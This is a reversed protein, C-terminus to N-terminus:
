QVRFIPTMKETEKLQQEKHTEIDKRIRNISELAKLRIEEDYDKLAKNLIPLVEKNSFSSIAELAKLRTEKDYNDLAKALHSLSIRSRDEGLMKIIKFKVIQETESELMEKI